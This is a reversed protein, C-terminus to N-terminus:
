DTWELWTYNPWWATRCRTGSPGLAGKLKPSHAMISEIGLERLARGFQTPQRKESLQEELTDSEKPSRQFIGHRDCYLALPFGEVQITQQPLLSTSRLM